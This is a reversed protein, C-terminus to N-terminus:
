ERATPYTGIADLDAMKSIASLGPVYLETKASERYKWSDDAFRSPHRLNDISSGWVRELMAPWTKYGLAVAVLNMATTHRVTGNMEHEIQDAMTRVMPLSMTKQQSINLMTLYTNCLVEPIQDEYQILGRLMPEFLFEIYHLSWQDKSYDRSGFVSDTMNVYLYQHWLNPHTLTDLQWVSSWVKRIEFALGCSRYGLVRFIHNQGQSYGLGPVLARLANIAEDLEPTTLSEKLVIEDFLDQADVGLTKQVEDCVAQYYSAYTGLFMSTRTNM